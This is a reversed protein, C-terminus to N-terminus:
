QARRAVGELKRVASVRRVPVPAPVAPVAQDNGAMYEAVTQLFCVVKVISKCIFIVTAGIFPVVTFLFNLVTMVFTIFNIMNGFMMMLTTVQFTWSTETVGATLTKAVAEDVTEPIQFTTENGLGYQLGENVVSSVYPYGVLFTYVAAFPGLAVTYAVTMDRMHQQMQQGINAM